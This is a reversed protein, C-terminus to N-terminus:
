RILLYITGTKSNGASSVAFTLQSMAVGAMDAEKIFETNATDRNGTASGLLLDVGDDDSITVTYNDSPATAGPDTILGAFRGTYHQSTTGSATGAADDSVWEAKIKKVSGFTIETFTMLSGAM